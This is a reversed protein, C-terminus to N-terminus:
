LDIPKPYDKIREVTSGSDHLPSELLFDALNQKPKKPQPPQAPTPLSVLARHILEPLSRFEGRALRTKIIEQDQPNTIEITM